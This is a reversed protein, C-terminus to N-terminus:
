RSSTAALPVPLTARYVDESSRNSFLNPHQPPRLYQHHILPVSVGRHDRLCCVTLADEASLFEPLAAGLFLLRHPNTVVSAARSLIHDRRETSLTFFSVVFPVESAARHLDYLLLRREITADSRQSRITITSMDVEFYFRFLRGSPLRFALAADPRLHENGVSLQLENEAYYADLQVSHRHASALTHVVVDMLALKHQHLSVPVESFFHKTPPQISQDGHLLRYGLLTLQYYAPGGGRSARAYWRQRVRGAHCLVRLRDLTRRISTFPETWTQSLALIQTATMPGVELARYIDADRPTHLFRRQSVNAM